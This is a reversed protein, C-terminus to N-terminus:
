YESLREFADLFVDINGPTPPFPFMDQLDALEEVHAMAVRSLHEANAKRQLLCRARNKVMVNTFGTGLAEAIRKWKNGWQAHLDLITKDDEESFLCTKPELTM